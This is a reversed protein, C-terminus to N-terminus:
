VVLVVSLTPTTAIERKLKCSQVVFDRDFEYIDGINVKINITENFNAANNLAINIVKSVFYNNIIYTSFSFTITKAQNTTRNEGNSDGTAEPLPTFNADLEEGLFRVSEYENTDKNFVAIDVIGETLSIVLAGQMSLTTRTEYGYDNFRNAVSPTNYYQLIGNNDSENFLLAYDTFFEQTKEIENPLGIIDFYIAVDLKGQLVSASGFRVVVLMENSKLKRKDFAQENVFYCVLDNYKENNSILSNAQYQLASIIAQYNLEM